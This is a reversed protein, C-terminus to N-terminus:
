KYLMSYESHLSRKKRDFLSFTLFLIPVAFLLVALIMLWKSQVSPDEFLTQGYNGLCTCWGKFGVVILALRYALVISGFAGIATLRLVSKTSIACIVITAMELAVAGQLVIRNDVGFVPDSYVLLKAGSVLAQVKAVATLFIVGCAVWCFADVISFKFARVRKV